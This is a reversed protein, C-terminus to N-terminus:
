PKEANTLKAPIYIKHYWIHVPIGFSVTLSLATNSLEPIYRLYVVADDVFFFDNNFTTLYLCATDSIM